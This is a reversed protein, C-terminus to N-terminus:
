DQKTDRYHTYEWTEDCSATAADLALDSLYALYQDKTMQVCHYTQEWDEYVERAAEVKNWRDDEAASNEGYVRGHAKVNDYDEQALILSRAAALHEAADYTSRDYIDRM